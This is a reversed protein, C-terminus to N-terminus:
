LTYKFGIVREIPARKGQVLKRNEQYMIFAFNILMLDMVSIMSLVALGPLYKSVDAQRFVTSAINGGLQVVALKCLQLLRGNRLELLTIKYTPSLSFRMGRSWIAGAYKVRNVSSGVMIGFGVATLLAHGLISQSRIKYRDSFWSTILQIVM